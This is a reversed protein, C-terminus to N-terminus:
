PTKLWKYTNIEKNNSLILYYIGEPLASIDISLTNNKVQNQSQSIVTQGLQNRIILKVQEPYDNSFRINLQTSAPNPFVVVENQASIIQQASTAFTDPHFYTINLPTSVIGLGTNYYNGSATSQLKVPKVMYYKMGNTGYSDVYSNINVLGSRLTYTGYEADSRYVYYGVVGGDPSSGWTIKAGGTTTTLIINNAPKIYDTRLTLDGMLAIHVMRSGYNNYAQYLNGDNNQALLTSYGIHEGLTMHHFFWHPRGAWCNTLAPTNACLPARLFNDQADWDGFYSGFLMTFIGNVNNAAINTTNGIGSASTYSGGGCGYSWQYTATNLSTIYDISQTSNNGLLPMFNRWGNAAFPETTSIGFNDDILARHLIALSDMKYSHDRNLYSRMMQIETKSFAPMNAFDIRSIQLEVNSPLVSQDFKGDGPINKNQARSAATSNVSADTWTGDIDAYFCDAPWAGLHDPHGDPNINGSYPVALHGLILVANTSNDAVFTSKIHNKINTVTETRLFTKQIVAWGDARIDNKLRKIEAACSDSFTSDVLLLLTGRNHIAPAKVSAYIYGSATTGGIVQYEYTANDLVTNDTYFSDTASLTAIASGFSTATKAKRFVQYSTVSPIKKWNIKIQAPSPTTTATLQISYDVPTQASVCNFFFLSAILFSYCKRM